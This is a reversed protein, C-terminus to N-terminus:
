TLRLVIQGHRLQDGERKQVLFIWIPSLSSVPHLYSSMDTGDLVSLAYLLQRRRYEWGQM